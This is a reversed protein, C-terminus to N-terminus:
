TEYYRLAEQIDHGLKALRGLEEPDDSTRRRIRYPYEAYAVLQRTAM